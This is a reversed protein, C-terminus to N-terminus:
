LVDTVKEMLFYYYYVKLLKLILEFKERSVQVHM